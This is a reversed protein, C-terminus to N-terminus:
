ILAAAMYALKVTGWAADATNGRKSITRWVSTKGRRAIAHLSSSYIEPARTAGILRLQYRRPASRMAFSSVPLLQTGNPFGM